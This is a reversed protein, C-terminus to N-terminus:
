VPKITCQQVNQTFTSQQERYVQRISKNKGGEDQDVIAIIIPKDKKGVVSVTCIM